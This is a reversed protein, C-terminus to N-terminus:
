RWLAYDILKKRVVPDFKTGSLSERIKKPLISLAWEILDREARSLVNKIAFQSDSLERKTRDDFTDYEESDILAEIFKLTALTKTYKAQYKNM